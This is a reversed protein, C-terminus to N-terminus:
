APKFSLGLDSLLQTAARVDDDSIGDVMVKVPTMWSGPDIREIGFLDIAVSVAGMSGPTINMWKM